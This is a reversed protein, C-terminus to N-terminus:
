QSKQEERTTTQEGKLYDKLSNFKKSIAAIM